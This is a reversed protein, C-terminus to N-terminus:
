YTCVVVKRAPLNGVKVMYVGVPLAENRVNRGMMDYVRVAMGDVGSVHIRGDMVWLGYDLTEVDGIGQRYDIKVCSLRVIGMTGCAHHFFGLKVVQGAYPSLSIQFEGGNDTSLREPYLGVTDDEANIVVVTLSDFGPERSSSTANYFLSTQDQVRVSPTILMADPGGSSAVGVSIMMGQSLTWVLPAGSLSYNEWCNFAGENFVPEWPFQSITDCPTEAFHAMFMTDSGLNFVLPNGGINGLANNWHDFVYGMTPTAEITHQGEPHRGRGTVHGQVFVYPSAYVYYMPVSTTPLGAFADIKGWGWLNSGTMPIDNTYRDQRGSAHLLTRVSDVNLSPNHQLWLAIVGAAAPSSMSTGQLLAYYHMTGNFFASDVAMDYQSLATANVSSALYQGPACIDPKVRGDWTPGHSSFYSLDGEEKQDLNLLFSGDTGYLKTRTAYSGVTIVDTGNGGEGGISYDDDGEMARPDGANYFQVVDSWMHVDASTSKLTIRFLDSSNLRGAKYLKILISPRHNRLNDHNVVINCHYVSDRPSVLDVSITTDVASTVFPIEMVFTHNDYRGYDYLGLSVSFTDGVAGWIDIKSNYNEMLSNYNYTYAMTDTASFQYHCHNTSSGSNAASAVLILSDLATGSSDRLYNELITCFADTGDHPGCLTGFSMNIVCPKHVSRAYEHIYRVADFASADEWNSAVMVIDAGPAIGRCTHDPGSGAAIGAVHSGHLEDACDRAVGLIAEPTIYETGYTFGAPPNGRSDFQQWVRKIRLTTGTTDYFTPHGYEFGGDIIGVVVGTGDYGQPLNIGRHIYDVGLDARANELYPHNEQGLDIYSCLGSAVFDVFRKVPIQVTMMDKVVSNVKVGYADMAKLDVGETLTVFALFSEAQCRGDRIELAKLAATPSLMTNQAWVATVASLFAILVTIKRM